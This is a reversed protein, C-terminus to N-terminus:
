GGVGAVSIGPHIELILEICIHGGAGGGAAAGLGLEPSDVPSGAASEMLVELEEMLLIGESANAGQAPLEESLVFDPMVGILPTDASVPMSFAPPSAPAVRAGGEASLGDIPFNDVPVADVPVATVSDVTLASLAYEVSATAPSTLAPLSHEVSACTHSTGPM